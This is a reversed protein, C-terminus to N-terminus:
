LVEGPKVYVWKMSWSGVDVSKMWPNGSPDRIVFQKGKNAQVDSRNSQKAVTKCRDGSPGAYVQMWNGNVKEFLGWSNM